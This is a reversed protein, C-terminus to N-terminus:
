HNKSHEHQMEHAFVKNINKADGFAIVQDGVEFVLDPSVELVEASRKIFIIHIGFDARVNSEQISKQKLMHPMKNITIEAIVGRPYEDLVVIPNDNNKYLLRIGMAEIKRNLWAKTVPVKKLIFFGTFVAFIVISLQWFDTRSGYPLTLVVNVFVSVVTLSFIFGFLMVQRALRRRNITALVMEAEKTTFGSNTILSVVQFRAKEESMGTMRFLLTYIDIILIFMVAVAFFLSLSIVLSM